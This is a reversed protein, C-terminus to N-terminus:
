PRIVKRIPSHGALRSRPSISSQGAQRNDSVKVLQSLSFPCRTMYQILREIGARDGAPLHMSQDFSFGSHLWSRM